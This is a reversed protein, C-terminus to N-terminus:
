LLIKTCIKQTQKELEVESFLTNIKAQINVFLFNNIIFNHKKLSIKTM